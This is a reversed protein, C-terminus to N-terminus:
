EQTNKSCSFLITKVTFDVCNYRYSNLEGYRMIRSFEDM